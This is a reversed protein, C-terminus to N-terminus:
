RLFTFLRPPIARPVAAPTRVYLGVGFREPPGDFAVEALGAEEFWGRVQERLDGGPGSGRTWAIYGGDRVMAPAADITRRIDGASINGFIGCLLLLDVPLYGGWTGSAGGDGQVVTVGPFRHLRAREAAAAALRPDQEVLVVSLASASPTGSAAVDLIDRGDGACLSLVRLDPRHLADLAQRLRRRVVELRRSLSSAPDDYGRHWEVYDRIGDASEM